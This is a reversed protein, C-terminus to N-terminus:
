QVELEKNLAVLMLAWEKMASETWKVNVYKWPIERNKYSYLTEPVTDMVRMLVHLFMNWSTRTLQSKWRTLQLLDTMERKNNM